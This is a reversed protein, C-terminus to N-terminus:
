RNREPKAPLSWSSSCLRSTGQLAEFIQAAEEITYAALSTKPMQGASPASLGLAAITQVMEAALWRRVEPPASRLQEASFGFGIM